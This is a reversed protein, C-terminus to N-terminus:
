KPVHRRHATCATCMLRSAIHTYPILYLTYPIPYLTYPIPYPTHLISPIPYLTHSQYPIPYLTHSQYITIHYPTYPIPSINGLSSIPIRTIRYSARRVANWVQVLTIRDHRLTYPIPYPTYPIPYQTYPIPYLTHPIPYPTYPIPYPTALIFKRVSNCVRM